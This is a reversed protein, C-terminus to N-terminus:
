VDFSIPSNLGIKNEDVGCSILLKKTDKDDVIVSGEMTISTLSSCDKFADRGIIKVSNPITINKLSSCGAFASGDIWKVGYPINISKLSSCGEFEYAEIITVGEPINISTLSSCRQFAYSGISKVSEPIKISILSSFGRFADSGISKVPIGNIESPIVLETDTGIYKTITGTAADFKFNDASTIKNVNASSTTSQNPIWEGSSNLYYGDVTTDHAMYGDSYFYYWKGEINRWGVSWSSGETNWWGTSDQKWEASAGIPNLALVSVVLLTCTIIKRLKMKKM